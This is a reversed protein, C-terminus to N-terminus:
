TMLWKNLRANMVTTPQQSLDHRHTPSPQYEDQASGGIVFLLHLIPSFDLQGFHRAMNRRKQVQINPQHKSSGDFGDGASSYFLQIRFGLHSPYIKAKSLANPAMNSIHQTQRSTPISGFPPKTQCRSM